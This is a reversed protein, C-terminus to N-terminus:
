IQRVKGATEMEMLLIHIHRTLTQLYSAKLLALCSQIDTHVVIWGVGSCISGM